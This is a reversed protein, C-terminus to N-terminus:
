DNPMVPLEDPFCDTQATTCGMDFNGAYVTMFHIGAVSRDVTASGAGSETGDTGDAVGDAEGGDGADEEGGVGHEGGGDDM